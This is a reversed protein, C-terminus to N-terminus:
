ISNIYDRFWKKITIYNYQELIEKIEIHSLLDENPIGLELGKKAITNFLGSFYIRKSSIGDMYRRWLTFKSTILSKIEKVYCVPAVSDLDYNKKTKFKIVYGTLPYEKGDEAIYKQAKISQIAYNILRKPVKVTRCLYPVGEDDLDYLQIINNAIDIHEPRMLALEVFLNGKIGSYIAFIIFKDVPNIMYSLLDEVQDVTYFDTDAGKTIKNLEGSEDLERAYNINNQLYGKKLCWDIYQILVDNYKKLTEIKKDNGYFGLLEEKTFDGISKKKSLQASEVQNFVAKSIYVNLDTKDELFENINQDYM